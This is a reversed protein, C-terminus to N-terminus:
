FFYIHSKYKLLIRLNLSRCFCFPFILQNDLVYFLFYFFLFSASFFFCSVPVCGVQGFGLLGAWAVYWKPIHSATPAWVPLLAIGEEEEAHGGVCWRTGRQRSGAVVVASLRNVAV